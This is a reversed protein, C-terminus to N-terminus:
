APEFRRFFALLNAILGGLTRFAGLCGIDAWHLLRELPRVGEFPLYWDRSSPFPSHRQAPCQAMPNVESAAIKIHALHGLSNVMTKGRKTVVSYPHSHM